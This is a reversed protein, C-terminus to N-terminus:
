LDININAYSYILLQWLLLDDQSNVTSDKLIKRRLPDERAKSLFIMNEIFLIDDESTYFFVFIIVSCIIAM